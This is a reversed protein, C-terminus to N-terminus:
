NAEPPAIRLPKIKRTPQPGGTCDQNYISKGFHCPMRELIEPAHQRAQMAPENEELTPALSQAPAASDLSRREQALFHSLLFAVVAYFLVWSVLSGIARM